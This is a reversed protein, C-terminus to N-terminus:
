SDPIDQAHMRLATSASAPDFGRALLFRRRRLREREDAAPEAHRKRLVALARGAEGDADPMEACLVEAVAQEATAPDVQRMNLERLIRQRGWQAARSRALAEAFRRDSQLGAAALDAVVERARQASCGRAALKAALEAASHERRALLAVAQKRPDTPPYPPM